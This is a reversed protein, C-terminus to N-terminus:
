GHKMGGIQKQLKALARHYKSLTGSLSLGLLQAIERHKLGSVAHLMVIQREEDGLVQLATQLIMRNETQESLGTTDEAEEPIDEEAAEWKARRLRGYALNRAITLIWAMPSGVPQYRDANADVALFTDQMIEEADARNKLISLAFGYVASKTQEYLSALAEEEGLGIRRILERLEAASPGGQKTNGLTSTLSLFFMNKIREDTYHM